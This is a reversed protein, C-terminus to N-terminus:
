YQVGLVSETILLAATGAVLLIGVFGLCFLVGRAGRSWLCYVPFAVPFTFFIAVSAATVLPKGRIRGDLQAWTAVLMATVFSLLLVSAGTDDQEPIVAARVGVLATM